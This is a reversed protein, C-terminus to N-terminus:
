ADLYEKYNVVSLYSYRSIAFAVLFINYFFGLLILTFLVDIVISIIAGKIMGEESRVTNLYITRDFWHQVSHKASLYGIVVSFLLLAIAM